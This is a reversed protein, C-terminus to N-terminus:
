SRLELLHFTTISEADEVNEAILRLGHSIGASRRCIVAIDEALEGDALMKAAYATDIVSLESADPHRRARWGATQRLAQEHSAFGSIDVDVCKAFVCHHIPLKLEGAVIAAFGDSAARGLAEKTETVTGGISNEIALIGFSIDGVMMAQIVSKSAILPVLEVYQGALTGSQAALRIAAEEANSGVDGQYGVRIPKVTGGGGYRWARVMTGLHGFCGDYPVHVVCENIPFWGSGEAKITLIAM